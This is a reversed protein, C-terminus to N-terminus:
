NVWSVKYSTLGLEWVSNVKDLNGTLKYLCESSSQKPMKLSYRDFNDFPNNLAESISKSGDKLSNETSTASLLYLLIWLYAARLVVEDKPTAVRFVANACTWTFFPVPITVM